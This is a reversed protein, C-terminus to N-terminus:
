AKRLDPLGSDLGHPCPAGGGLAAAGLKRFYSGAVTAAAIGGVMLLGPISFLPPLGAGTPAADTLDTPPATTTGPPTGTSPPTDLPPAGPPAAEGTGDDVPAETESEEPELVPPEMVPSTAVRAKANGLTVVMRSSLGTVLGLAEKLQGAEEPLANLLDALPLTDLQAKLPKMDLQIVLGAVAASASAGDKEYVPKPISVTIGLMELAKSAEDPLGPIPFAQGAAEFGDPGFAFRQGLAVLEGYAAVGGAEGKAGDSSVKARVKLGEIRILGSLIAIDGFSSRSVATVKQDAETRSVSTFGSLDVIAGLAPPLGLPTPAEEGDEGDRDTPASALDTLGDLGPLPLGPVLGPDEEEADRDQAESDISWGTEAYASGESSGARQIMGPLPEDSDREPGNPYLSNVQVPYGDEGLEPPLGFGEAFTKFGEGIPDGPWLFSSRGRSTTSDSEVESYAIELEMQPSSPIPIMPEYIELKVPAAWAASSYGGFERTPEPATTESPEESPDPSETPDDALASGFPLVAAVLGTAFTTAILRTSRKM